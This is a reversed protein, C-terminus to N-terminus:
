DEEIDDVELDTGGGVVGEEGGGGAFSCVRRNFLRLFGMASALSEARAEEEEGNVGVGGGMGGGGRGGEGGILKAYPVIESVMEGGTLRVPAAGGAAMDMLYDDCLLALRRKRERRSRLVEYFRPTTM